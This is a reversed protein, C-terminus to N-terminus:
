GDDDGRLFERFKAMGSREGPDPDPAAERERALADLEADIMRARAALREAHTAGPYRRLTDTM